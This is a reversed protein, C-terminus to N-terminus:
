VAIAFRHIPHKNRLSGCQPSRPNTTSSRSISLRGYKVVVGVGGSARPHRFFSEAYSHRTPRDCVLVMDIQSPYSESLALAEVSGDRFNLVSCSSSVGRSLRIM